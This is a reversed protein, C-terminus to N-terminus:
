KAELLKARISEPSSFKNVRLVIDGSLCLKESIYEPAVEVLLNLKEEVERKDVIDLHGVVIKHILEEKTIVSRRISQFLLCIMDFLKPVSAILQERRRAQSMIPDQEEM